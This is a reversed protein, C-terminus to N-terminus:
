AAYNSCFGSLTIANMMMAPTEHWPGVTSPAYDTYDKSYEYCISARWADATKAWDPPMDAGAAHVAVYLAVGPDATAVTVPDAQAHGAVEHHALVQLGTAVAAGILVSVLFARFRTMSFTFCM